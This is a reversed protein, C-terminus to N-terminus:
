WTPVLKVVKLDENSQGKKEAAWKLEPMPQCTLWMSKRQIMDIVEKFISEM